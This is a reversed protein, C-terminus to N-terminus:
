PEVTIEAENAQSGAIRLRYIGPSLNVSARGRFHQQLRQVSGVVIRPGGTLREVLVGGDAGALDEIGISVLGARVTAKPPYIGEPYLTFRVHQSPIIVEPRLTVAEPVLAESSGQFCMAIIVILAGFLATTGILHLSKRRSPKTCRPRTLSLIRWM